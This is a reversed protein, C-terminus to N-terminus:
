LIQVHAVWICVFLVAPLAACGFVITQEPNSMRRRKQLVVILFVVGILLLALTVSVPIVTSARF